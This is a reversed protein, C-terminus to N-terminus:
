AIAGHVGRVASYYVLSPARLAVTLVFAM